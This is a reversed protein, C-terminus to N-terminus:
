LTLFGSLLARVCKNLLIRLDHHLKALELKLDRSLRGEQKVLEHRLSGFRSLGREAEMEMDKLPTYVKDALEKEGLLEEKTAFRAGDAARGHLRIGGQGPELRLKTECRWKEPADADPPQDKPDTCVWVQGHPEVAMFRLELPDRHRAAPAGPRSEDEMCEVDVDTKASCRECFLEGCLRCHHKKGMLGFSDQCRACRGTDDAWRPAVRYQEAKSSERVDAPRVDAMKTRLNALDRLKSKQDLRKKESEELAQTFQSMLDQQAGMRTALEHETTPAIYIRGDGAFCKVCVRWTVGYADPEGEANLKAHYASCSQCFIDGCQRCHHKRARGVSFPQSCHKCATRASDAVGAPPTCLVASYPLARPDAILSACLAPPSLPRARLRVSDVGRWRRGRIARRARSIRLPLPRRGAELRAAAEAAAEL